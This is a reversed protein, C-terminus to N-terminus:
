IREIKSRNMTPSFMIDWKTNTTGGAMTSNYDHVSSSLTEDLASQEDTQYGHDEGDDAEITTTAQTIVIEAAVPDYKPVKASRPSVKASPSALADETVRSPM